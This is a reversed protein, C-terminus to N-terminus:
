QPGEALINGIMTALKEFADRDSSTQPPVTSYILWARLMGNVAGSFPIPAYTLLGKNEQGIKLKRPLGCCGAFPRPACRFIRNEGDGIM